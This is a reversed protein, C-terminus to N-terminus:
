TKKEEAAKATKLLTKFRKESWVPAFVKQLYEENERVSIGCSRIGYLDEDVYVACTLEESNRIRKVTVRDCSSLEGVSLFSETDFSGWKEYSEVAEELTRYGDETKGLLFLSASHFLKLGAYLWLLGDPVKGRGTEKIMEERVTYYRLGIKADDECNASRNCFYSFVYFQELDLFALAKVKDGRDLLRRGILNPKIRVDSNFMDLYKGAEEDDDILLALVKAANQRLKTETCEALIRKAMDVAVTCLAVNDNACRYVWWSIASMLEYCKPYARYFRFVVEKQKEPQAECLNLENRWKELIQKLSERGVGLLEDVSIELVASIAPLMTVDPYSENREWNSVAQASVGLRVALEEQTMGFKKRLNAVTEAIYIEM